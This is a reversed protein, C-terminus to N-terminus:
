WFEGMSFQVKHGECLTKLKCYIKMYPRAYFWVSIWSLLKTDKCFQHQGNTRHKLKEKVKGYRQCNPLIIHLGINRFLLLSLLLTNLCNHFDAIYAVKQLPAFAFYQTNQLNASAFYQTNKLNASIAFYQTKWLNQCWVGSIFCVFSVFIFYYLITFVNLESPYKNTLGARCCYLLFKTYRCMFCPLM